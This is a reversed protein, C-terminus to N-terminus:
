HRPEQPPFTDGCSAKKMRKTNLYLRYCRNKEDRVLLFSGALKLDSIFLSQNDEEGRWFEIRTRFVKVKWLTKGSAEDTAVVYSDKGDGAASYRIGDAVIPAVAKPPVRKAAASISSFLCVLVIGFRISKMASIIFWGRIAPREAACSQPHYAQYAFGTVRGCGAADKQKAARIGSRSFRRGNTCALRRRLNETAASCASTIKEQGGNPVLPIAILRCKAVVWQEIENLV